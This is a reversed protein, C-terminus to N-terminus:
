VCFHCSIVSRQQIEPVQFLEVVPSWLFFCGPSRQLVYCNHNAYWTRWIWRDWCHYIPSTPICGGLYFGQQVHTTILNETAQHHTEETTKKGNATFRWNGDKEIAMQWGKPPPSRIKHEALPRLSAVPMMPPFSTWQKLWLRQRRKPIKANSAAPWM